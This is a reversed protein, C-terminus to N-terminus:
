GDTRLDGPFAEAGDRRRIERRALVLYVTGLVLALLLMAGAAAFLWYAIQEAYGTVFAYLARGTIGIREIRGSLLLIAPPLALTLAAGSFAYVAYRCFAKRRRRIAFLFALTFLCLLGVAGAAVRVPGRLSRLADSAYSALPLSVGEGYTETCVTALYGVAEEVEPTVAIERQRVNELLKETLDSQFAELDAGARGATYLSDIEREVDAQVAADDLVSLFFAEDFGSSIGYSVFIEEMDQKIYGIYGSQEMVRKLFAPSLITAQTLILLAFLSLFLSLLFSLLWSIVNRTREQAPTAM